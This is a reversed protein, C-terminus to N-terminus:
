EEWNGVFSIGFGQKAFDLEAISKGNFLNTVEELTGSQLEFCYVSGAPVAKMMKKPCGNKIDYGGVYQTKGMCVSLLKVNIGKYEGELSNKDIWSPIWGNKFIAPTALYLKFKQGKLSYEYLEENNQIEKYSCSKSEGGLKIFGTSPINLGEFEICIKVKDMRLMNMRYLCENKVSNTNNNIRIGIKNESLILDELKRIKLEETYGQLFMELDSKEIIGNSINEVELNNMFFYELNSSSVFKKNTNKLGTVSYIKRRNERNKQNVNRNKLQVLSFPCPYYYGLFSNRNEYIKYSINKIVLNRTPDQKTTAKDLEDVHNAFYVTRLAGYLVSPYPPFFSDAWTEDEMNFAKADKFFLTDLPTIEIKM